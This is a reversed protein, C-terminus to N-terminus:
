LIGEGTEVETQDVSTLREVLRLLAAVALIAGGIAIAYQWTGVKGIWELFQLGTTEALRDGASKLGSSDLNGRRLAFAHGAWALAVGAIVTVVDNVVWLWGRVKEPLLDTIVAFRIHSDTMYAYAIGFMVGYITLYIPLEEGWAISKGLTYRRLSNIFIIGFVLAMSCGAGFALLKRVYRTITQM